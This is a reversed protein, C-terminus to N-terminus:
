SPLWRVGIETGNGPESKITLTAGIDEARERMIGLGLHAPMIADFVFGCGDDAVRLSIVAPHCHLDIQVHQAQAHKTVNNLAEQAIRYFAIKIHPAIEAQGAISLAVTIRARGRVGDALQRILDTLEIEALKTPRLELLLTRMEALAGRTLERLEELKQQGITQNRQWLRPLVEAIMSASFLTQTVADHLDRAIRNREAAVAAQEIQNHLRANEIALATQNGMSLALDIAEQSFTHKDEYCLLLGGYLEHKIQIPVGLYARYGLKTLEAEMSATAYTQREIDSIVVPEGALLAQSPIIQEISSGSVMAQAELSLRSAQLIFHQNGNDLRYVLSADAGLLLCAQAV